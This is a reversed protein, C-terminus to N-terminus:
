NICGVHGKCLHHISMIPGIGTAWPFKFYMTTATSYKEFHISAFAKAILEVVIWFNKQCFMIHRKPNGLDMVISMAGLEVGFCESCETTLHSSINM